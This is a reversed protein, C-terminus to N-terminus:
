TITSQITTAWLWRTAFLLNKLLIQPRVINSNLTIMRLPGPCKQDAGRVLHRGAGSRLRVTWIGKTPVGERSLSVLWRADSTLIRKGPPNPGRDAVSGERRAVV